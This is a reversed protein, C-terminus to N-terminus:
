PSTDGFRGRARRWAGVTLAWGPGTLLHLRVAGIDVKRGLAKELGAQINPGFRDAKLFPAGGLAILIALTAWLLKRKM